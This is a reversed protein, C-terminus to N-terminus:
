RLKIDKKRCDSCLGTSRNTWYELGCVPCEVKQLGGMPPKLRPRAEPPLEAFPDAICTCVAPSIDDPKNDPASMSAEMGSLPVPDGGTGM